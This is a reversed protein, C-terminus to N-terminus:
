RLAETCETGGKPDFAIAGTEDTCFGRDGTKGVADPAAAIRYHLVSGDNGARCDSLTYHYGAKSGRALDDPVLQAAEASPPGLKPNGGLKALECTFGRTAYSAAYQGEMQNLTKLSQIAEAEDAHVAGREWHPVVVTMLLLVAVIAVVLETLTFGRRTEKAM